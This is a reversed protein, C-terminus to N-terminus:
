CRSDHGCSSAEAGHPELPKGVYCVLGRRPSPRCLGALRYPGHPMARYSFAHKRLIETCFSPWAELFLMSAVKTSILKHTVTLMVFCIPSYEVSFVQIRKNVSRTIAPRPTYAQILLLYTILKKALEPPSPFM